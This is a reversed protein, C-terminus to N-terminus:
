ANRFVSCHRRAARADDPSLDGPFLRIAACACFFHRATYAYFLCAIKPPNWIFCVSIAFTSLSADRIPCSTVTQPQTRVARSEAATAKRSIVSPVLKERRCTTTSLFLSASSGSHVLHPADTRAFPTTTLANLPSPASSLAVSTVRRPFHGGSYGM